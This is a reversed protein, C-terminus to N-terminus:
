SQPEEREVELAIENKRRSPITWPPNFQSLVAKADMGGKVKVGDAELMKKLAEEKERVMAEDAKGSFEAVALFREPVEKMEIRSDKPVPLEDVSSYRSHPMMFAMKCSEATTETMVPATMPISASSSSSTSVSNSGFIYGALSRFANSTGSGARDGSYTVEAIIMPDYRRIEYGSASSLVEFRPTEESVTGIVSGM